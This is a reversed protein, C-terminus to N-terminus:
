ARFTQIAEVIDARCICCRQLQTSCEMCVAVHACPLLVTNIEAIFCVKCLSDDNSPSSSRSSGTPCCSPAAAASAGAAGPTAAAPLMLAPTACRATSDNGAAAAAHPVAADATASSPRCAALPSLPRAECLAATEADMPGSCPSVAPSAGSAAASAAAIDMPSLAAAAEIAAAPSPLAAIHGAAAAAPNSGPAQHPPSLIAAVDSSVLSTFASSRVHQQWQEGRQIAALESSLREIETRISREKDVGSRMPAGDEKTTRLLRPPYFKCPERETRTGNEWTELFSSQGSTFIGRGHKKGSEWRGKFVDGNAYLYTGKGTQEGHHWQPLFLFLLSCPSPLLSSSGEVSAATLQSARQVSEDSFHVRTHTQAM